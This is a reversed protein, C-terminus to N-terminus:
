LTYIPTQFPTGELINTSLDIRESQAVTLWNKWDGVGGKRLLDKSVSNSNQYAQKMVDFGAATAIDEVLQDDLTIQLFDAMKRIEKPLDKKMDEFRVVLLPHDPNSKIVHDWDKYYNFYDGYDVRGDMYLQFWDKFPGDYIYMTKIAMHHNYFSVATDKPNRVTLIIKTKKASIQKPLYNFWMHSNLVRPSPLGEMLQGPGIELFALDKGETSLQAERRSIMSLVEWTWHCGTKPYGCLLIDDDRLELDRMQKLGRDGFPPVLKDDYSWLKLERGEVDYVSKNSPFGYTERDFLKLAALYMEKSM